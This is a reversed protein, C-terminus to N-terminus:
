YLAKWLVYPKTVRQLHDEATRRERLARDFKAQLEACLSEKEDLLRSLEAMKKQGEYKV